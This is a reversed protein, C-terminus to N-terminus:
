ESLMAPKGAATVNNDPSVRVIAAKYQDLLGKLFDFATESLHPINVIQISGDAELVPLPVGRTRQLQNGSLSVGPSAQQRRMGRNPDSPDPRDSVAESDDIEQGQRVGAFELTARLQPIFQRIATATFRRERELFYRLNADSPLHGGYKGWIKRHIAPALAAAQVAVTHKETGSGAIAIDLGRDTLRYEGHRGELIGFNRWAPLHAM